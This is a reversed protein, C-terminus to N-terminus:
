CGQGCTQCTPVGRISPLTQLFAERIPVPVGVRLPLLLIHNERGKDGSFSTRLGYDTASYHGLKRWTWSFQIINTQEPLVKIAQCSLFTIRSDFQQRRKYSVPVLLRTHSWGPNQRWCRHSTNPFNSTTIYIQSGSKSVHSINEIM